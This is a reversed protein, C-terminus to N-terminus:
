PTWDILQDAYEEFVGATRPGLSNTEEYHDGEAEQVYPVSEHLIYNYEPIIYGLEDNGLGIIWNTEGGMREKLYPGEPALSLDAANPQALDVIPDTYDGINTHSGDYGGVAIEPLLEGPVTLMRISGLDLIDLESQLEPVNYEDLPADPDYNFAPRQFVGMLYMAQFAFNDIPFYVQMGRLALAPEAEPSVGVLSELAQSAMMHGIAQAKDFNSESFVGGDRDTVEVGLPTMMGGVSAQIYLSVGGLGEVAGSDWDVGNEMG